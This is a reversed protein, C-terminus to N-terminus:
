KSKSATVIQCERSGMAVDDRILLASSRVDMWLGDVDECQIWGKSVLLRTADRVWINCRWEGPYNLSTGVPVNTFLLELEQRTTADPVYGLKAAQVSSMSTSFNHAKPTFIWGPNQTVHFLTGGPSDHTQVYLGWHFPDGPPYPRFYAVMYIAGIELNPM